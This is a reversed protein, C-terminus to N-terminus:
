GDVAVSASLVAVSSSFTKEADLMYFAWTTYMNVSAWSWSPGRYAKVRGPQFADAVKFGAEWFLFLGLERGWHDALYRGNNVAHFCSAIGSLALTQDAEVTLRSELYQITDTYWAEYTSNRRLSGALYSYLEKGLNPEILKPVLQNSHDVRFDVIVNAQGSSVLNTLNPREAHPEIPGGDM